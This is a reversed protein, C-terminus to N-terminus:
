LLLRENGTQNSDVKQWLDPGFEQELWDNTETLSKIIATIRRISVILLFDALGRVRAANTRLPSSSPNRLTKEPWDNQLDSAVRHDNVILPITFSDNRRGAIHHKEIPSRGIRTQRCEYCVINPATGQLAAPRTEGCFKCRADRTGLRRLYKEKREDSKSM